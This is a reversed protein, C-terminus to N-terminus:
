LNACATEREARVQPDALIAALTPAACRPQARTVAQVPPDVVRSNMTDARSLPRAGLTRLGGTAVFAITTGAAVVLVAIAPAVRWRTGRQAGLVENAARRVIAE